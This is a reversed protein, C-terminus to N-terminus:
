WAVRAGRIFCFAERGGRRESAGCGGCGHGLVPVEGGPVREEDVHAAGGGGPKGHTARVAREGAVSQLERAAEGGARLRGRRRGRRRRAEVDALECHRQAVARGRRQARVAGGAGVDRAAEGGDHVQAAADGRAAGLGVVGRAAGECGGEGGDDDADLAAERRLM